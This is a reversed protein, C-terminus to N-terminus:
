SSAPPSPDTAPAKDPRTGIYTAITLLIAGLISSGLWGEAIFVTFILWSTAMVSVALIKARVPIIRYTSWAQLPPGFRPHEYLWTHFRESSRAFAWLAVILFITTPMGPVFVGIMGLVVCLWGLAFLLPRAGPWASRSEAASRNGAEAAAKASDTRTSRDQPM